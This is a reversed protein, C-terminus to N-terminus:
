FNILPKQNIIIILIQLPNRPPPSTIDPKVDVLLDVNYKTTPQQTAKWSINRITM